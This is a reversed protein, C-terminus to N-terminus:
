LRRPFRELIRTVVEDIEEEMWEQNDIVGDMSREAWGRWVLKNTRADVFDLLLTGADYVYPKCDDCYGYKRDAGSVDLRQNISAHYHILLDPTGSTTEEFGMTALQKEVDAQVRQHFFPNNDLRPNGIPLADAPGWDYTRYQAFDLGREAHSSLNMTACGMLALASIAVAAALRVLRLM